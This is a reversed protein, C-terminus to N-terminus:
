AKLATEQRTGQEIELHMMELSVQQPAGSDLSPNPLGPSQTFELQMAHSDASILFFYNTPGKRQVAEM